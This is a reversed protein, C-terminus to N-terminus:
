TAAATVGGVAVVAGLAVLLATCMHQMRRSPVPQQDLVAVMVGWAAALTAALGGVLFGFM